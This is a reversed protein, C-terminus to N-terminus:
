EVPYVQVDDLDVVSNADPEFAVYIREGPVGKLERTCSLPQWDDSLKFHPNAGKTGAVDKPVGNVLASNLLVLGFGGKGRARFRIKVTGAGQALYFQLVRGATLHLYHGKGDAHKLLQAGGKSSQAMWEKAYHTGAWSAFSGPHREKAIECQTEFGSNKWSSLDGSGTGQRSAMFRVNVFNDAVGHTRGNASIAGTEYGKQGEVERSRVVNLKWTAGDLIRQGIEDCPIAIELTWRDDYTKVAWQSRTRIAMDRNTLSKNYSDVIQGKSNIALHWCADGMDPFSYLIEVSNGLGTAQDDDPDVRDGAVMKDPTPEMGEFALYLHDIDYAVRLSSPQLKQDMRWPPPVFKTNVDASKWDAEDLVGDVKIPGTVKYATIERYSELFAKRRAVWTANFIEIDRAVHMEARADGSAKAAALSKTLLRQLGELVDLGDLCRGTTSGLGWGQCGPAELFCKTLKARFERMGGEWGAGYYLANAEELAAKWDAKRNWLVLGSVYVGQWMAHWWHNTGGYPHPFNKWGTKMRTEQTCLQDGSCGLMPYAIYNAAQVSEAPLMECGPAGHSDPAGCESRNYPTVGIKRFSEYVDRWVKNVPCKPDDLTHRWCQNNYSVMIPDLRPDPKVHRPAFWFNQYASGSLHANPLKKWVRAALQNVVWWYRDALEGRTGKAEPADLARCKECQCWTMCDNNCIIVTADAGHPLRIVNVLNSAMYDLLAPNSLCPNAQNVGFVKRRQGDILPFWEPHEAFLEDARQQETQGPKCSHKIMMRSMMHWSELCGKVGLADYDEPRCDIKRMGDYNGARTQMNNRAHWLATQYDCGITRRVAADPAQANRGVPVRVTKDKLVCYEGEAEPILWRMGFHRKLLEYAGYLLGLDDGGAITMGDPKTEIVFSEPKLAADTRLMIPYSETGNMKAGTSVGAYKVIEKALFAETASPKEQVVVRCKAAGNEVLTVCEGAVLCMGATLGLVVAFVGGRLVFRGNRMNM